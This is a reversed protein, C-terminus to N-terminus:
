EFPKVVVMIVIIIFTITVIENIIKYFKVSHKNQGNAFLRRYRAFLIHLIILIAVGIIKIYFWVGLSYLGYIHVLMLGLLITFLMAPNIIIRLLRKEMLKFKEDEKKSIDVEAHYAFLRPLYFMGAMWATMFIIHFAKIWEYYEAM